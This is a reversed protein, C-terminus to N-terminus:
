EASVVGSFPTHFILGYSAATHYLYLSTYNSKIGAAMTRSDQGTVVRLLVAQNNVHAYFHCLVFIFSDRCKDAPMKQIM